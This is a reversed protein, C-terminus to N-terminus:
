HDVLGFNNDLKQSRDSMLWQVATKKDAFVKMRAGRNVATNEFLQNGFETPDVVALKKGRALSAIYEGLEFRDIEQSIMSVKSTDVLVREYERNKVDDALTGALAKLEEVVFDGTIEFALYGPEVTATVFLGM